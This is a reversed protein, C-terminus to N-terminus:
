VDAARHESCFPSEFPSLGGFSYSTMSKPSYQQEDDEATPVMADVMGAAADIPGNNLPDELPWSTGFVPVPQNEFPSLCGGTAVPYQPRHSYNSTTFHKKNGEAYMSMGKEARYM